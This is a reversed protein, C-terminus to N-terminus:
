RYKWRRQVTLSTSVNSTSRTSVGRENTKSDTVYTKSYIPQVADRALALHYVGAVKTAHANGRTYCTFRPAVDVTDVLHAMPGLVHSYSTVDFCRQLFLSAPAVVTTRQRPCAHANTTKDLKHFGHPERSDEGRGGRAKVNIHLHRLPTYVRKRIAESWPVRM